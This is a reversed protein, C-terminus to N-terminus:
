PDSQTITDPVPNQSHIWFCRTFFHCGADAANKEACPTDMFEDQTVGLFSNDLDNNRDHRTADATDDAEDFANDVQGFGILLEIVGVDRVLLAPELSPNSSVLPGEM